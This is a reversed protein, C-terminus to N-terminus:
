LVFIQHYFESITENQKITIITLEKKANVKHQTIDIYNKIEAFMKDVTLLDGQIIVWSNIKDWILAEM